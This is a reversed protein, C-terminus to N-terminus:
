PKVKKKSTNAFEQIFTELYFLVQEKTDDKSKSSDILKCRNINKKVIDKYGKNVREKFDDNESEFKDPVKGTQALRAKSVHLPVDFVFTLGPRLDGLVINELQRLSSEAFGKAAGQYVNTSDIFRDCIVWAGSELAPAIVDSVHQARAANMLLTEATLDMKHTLLLDRLKEGLPTGGPERTLVVTEGRAELFNKIVPIFTSKGAGDGGEITIFRLKEM